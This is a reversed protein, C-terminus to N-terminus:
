RVMDPKDDTGCRRIGREGKRGELLAMVLLAAPQASWPSPATIAPL